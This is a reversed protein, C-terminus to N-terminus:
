KEPDRPKVEEFEVYEGVSGSVRKEPTGSTKYVKVDGESRRSSWTYTRGRQSAGNREMERRLRGIRYRLLLVLVAALLLFTLMVYFIFNAIGVVVSPAAVALILLVLCTVPNRRVFETLGYLIRAFFGMVLAEIFLM